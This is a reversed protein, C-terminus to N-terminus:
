TDDHSGEFDTDNVTLTIDTPGGVPSDIALEGDFAALRDAIGDLGGPQPLGYHAGGHGDDHVDVQVIGHQPRNLRVTALTAGSHKVVNSLLEALCFYLNTEIETPLRGPLDDRIDVPLTLGDSLERLAPALGHDVLVQPHINHVFHRMADLAHQTQQQARIVDERGPADDTMEALALGLTMSVSMIQPQVGDHLDREIRRREVDFARVLRTRSQTTRTLDHELRQEPRTLVQVALAAHTRAALPAVMVLVALVVIAIVAAVISQPLTAVTVPGIVAQDGAAALFPSVLAVGSGIILLAALVAIAGGFTLM